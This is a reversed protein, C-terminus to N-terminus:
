GKPAAACREDVIIEIKHRLEALGESTWVHLAVRAPQGDAKSPEYDPPVRVPAFTARLGGMNPLVSIESAEQGGLFVRGGRWLRYGPINIDARQCATVRKDRFERDIITPKRRKAGLVVADIGEYANPLPVTWTETAEAAVLGDGATPPRGALRRAETVWGTRATVTVYDWWAPVSVVAMVSLQVPERGSAASGDAMGPDVLWGFAPVTGGSAQDIRTEGFSTVAVKRRAGSRTEESSRGLGIGAMAADLQLGYERDSLSQELAARVSQRPLVAYSYSDAGGIRRIFNFLGTRLLLTQSPCPTAAKGEGREFEDPQGPRVLGGREAIDMIEDTLPFQPSVKTSLVGRMSVPVRGYAFMKRRPLVQAPVLWVPSDGERPRCDDPALSLSDIRNTLKVFPPVNPDGHPQYSSLLMDGVQDIVFAKSQGKENLVDFFIDTERIGLIEVLARIILYQYFRETMWGAEPSLVYTPTLPRELAVSQEVGLKAREEASLWRKVFQALDALEAPPWLGELLSAHQRAIAENLRVELDDRWKELLNDLITFSRQDQVYRRLLEAPPADRMYTATDAARAKEEALMRPPALSMEVLALPSRRAPPVVSLEFKLVYLSNGYLDHRDDLQNELLKHQLMERLASRVLFATEFDLSADSPAAPAEVPKGPTPLAPTPPAPAAAPPAAGASPVAARLSAAIRDAVSRRSLVLNTARDVERLQERLWKEDDLRQNILRERTYVQTGSVKIIGRGPEQEGGALMAGAAVLIALGAAAALVAPRRIWRGLRM